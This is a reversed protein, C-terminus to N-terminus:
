AKLEGKHEALLHKVEAVELSGDPSSGVICYLGAGKTFGAIPSGKFVKDYEVDDKAGSAASAPLSFVSISSKGKTFNLQAASFEGVQRVAGGVFTWGDRTLDAVFVPRNIQKALAPAEALSTISGAGAAEHATLMAQYLSDSIALDRNYVPPRNMQWIQYGLAGFGILLVAAVALKYIPSQRWNVRIPPSEDQTMAVIRDRLGAPPSDRELVRRLAGKLEPDDFPQAATEEM